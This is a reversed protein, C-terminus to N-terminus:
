GPPEPVVKVQVDIVGSSLPHLRAFGAASLDLLYNGGRDTVRCVISNKDHCVVLVTGVPYFNSACMQPDSSNFVQGNAMVRGDYGDGAGYYTALGTRDVPGTLLTFWALLFVVSNIM